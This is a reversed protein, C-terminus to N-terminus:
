CGHATCAVFTDARRTGRWTGTPVLASHVVHLPAGDGLAGSWETTPCWRVDLNLQTCERGRASGPRRRAYWGNWNSWRLQYKCHALPAGTSPRLSGHTNRSNTSWESNLWGYSQREFTLRASPTATRAISPESPSCTLLFRGAPAPLQIQESFNPDMTNGFRCRQVGLPLVSVPKRTKHQHTLIKKLAASSCEHATQLASDKEWARRWLRCWNLLASETVRRGTRRANNM